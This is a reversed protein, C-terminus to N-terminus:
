LAEMGLPFIGGVSASMIGSWPGASGGRAARDGSVERPHEGRARSAASHEPYRERSHILSM